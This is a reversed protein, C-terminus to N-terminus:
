ADGRGGRAAMIEIEGRARRLRGGGPFELQGGRGSQVFEVAGQVWEAGPFRAGAPASWAWAELLGRSLIPAPSALLERAKLRWTGRGKEISARELLGLAEQQLLAADAAAQISLRVIAEDVRPNLEELLPVLEHRVRSRPYRESVNSPDERFPVGTVGAWAAIAARTFPLLPRLVPCGDLVVVPAIAALGDPSTGRVIRLLVTEVLDDRQHATVLATAGVREVVDRLFAYRLDRAAAQPGRGANRVRAPVDGRGRVARAGWRRATAAVFRGDEASEVGRMGHDYHAAVVEREGAIRERALLALLTMSDIGGSVAVVIGEDAPPAFHRIWHERFAAALDDIPRGM